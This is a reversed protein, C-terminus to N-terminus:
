PKIVSVLPSGWEAGHTKIEPRPVRTTPEVRQAATIRAEWSQEGMEPVLPATWAEEIASRLADKLSTTRTRLEIAENRHEETFQALHPLLAHTDAQSLFKVLISTVIYSIPNFQGHLVDFRM